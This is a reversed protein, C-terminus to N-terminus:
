LLLVELAVEGDRGHVEEDGVEVGHAATQREERAGPEDGLVIRGLHLVQRRCTGALWMPAPPPAAAGWRGAEQRRGRVRLVLPLSTPLLHGVGVAAAMATTFASSRM